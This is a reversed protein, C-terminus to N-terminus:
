QTSFQIQRWPPQKWNKLKDRTHLRCAWRGEGQGSFALPRAKQTSHADLAERQPHREVRKAGSSNWKVIKAMSRRAFCKVSQVIAMFVACKCKCECARVSVCVWTASVCECECLTCVHLRFCDVLRLLSQLALFQCFKLHCIFVFRFFFFRFDCLAGFFLIYVDNVSM